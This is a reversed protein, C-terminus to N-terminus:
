ILNSFDINNLPEAVPEIMYSTFFYSGFRPSMNYLGRREHKEDSIYVRNRRRDRDDYVHEVCFEKGCYDLMDATFTVGDPMIQSRAFHKVRVTEGVQPIYFDYKDM